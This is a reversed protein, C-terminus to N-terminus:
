HKTGHGLSQGRDCGLRQNNGLNSQLRAWWGASIALGELGETLDHLVNNIILTEKGEELTNSRLDQLTKQDLTQQHHGLLPINETELNADAQVLKRM